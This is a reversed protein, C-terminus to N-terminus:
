SPYNTLIGRMLAEPALVAPRLNEPRNKKLRQNAPSPEWDHRGPLGEENVVSFMQIVFFPTLSFGTRKKQPNM